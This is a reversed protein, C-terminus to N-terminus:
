DIHKTLWGKIKSELMSTCGTFVHDCQDITYLEKEGQYSGVLTESGQHPVAADSNGHIVLLPTNYQQVAKLPQHKETLLDLVFEKHLSFGKGYFNTITQGSVAQEWLQRGIIIDRFNSIPDIVPALAIRGAIPIEGEEHLLIVCGGLSHGLLYISSSQFEPQNAIWAVVTSLDVKWGSVTTEESFSGESEGSGLFDFRVVSVGIEQIVRAMNLLFRNAGLKEGTFGHCFVVVSNLNANKAPHIMCSIKKNRSEIWQHIQIRMFGRGKESVGVHIDVRSNFDIVNHEPM